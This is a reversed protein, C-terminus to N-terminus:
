RFCPVGLSNSRQLASLLFWFGNQCRVLVTVRIKARRLKAPDGSRIKTRVYGPLCRCSLSQDDWGDKISTISSHRWQRKENERRSIENLGVDLDTLPVERLQHIYPRTSDVQCAVREIPMRRFVLCVLRLRLLSSAPCLTSTSTWLAIRWRQHEHGSNSSRREDIDLFLGRRFPSYLSRMCPVHSRGNHLHPCIRDM